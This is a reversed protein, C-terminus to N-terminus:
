EHNPSDSSSPVNGSRLDHSQPPPGPRVKQKKLKEELADVISEISSEDPQRLDIYGASERLGPVEADDLQIPLIYEDADRLARERASTRDANTWTKLPYDASVLIVCYRAKRAYLNVLHDLMGKGWGEANAAQYEDFFVKINRRAFLAAFEDAVARDERAFSLAIDYEFPDTTM